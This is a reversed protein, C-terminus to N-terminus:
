GEIWVCTKCDIAKQIIEVLHKAWGRKEEDIEQQMIFETIRRAPELKEFPIKEEEFEDILLDLKRNFVSYISFLFESKKGMILESYFETEHSDKYTCDNEDNEAAKPSLPVYVWHSPSVYKETM